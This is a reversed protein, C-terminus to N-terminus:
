AAMLFFFRTNLLKLATYPVLLRRVQTSLDDNVTVSPPAKTIDETHYFKRSSITLPM